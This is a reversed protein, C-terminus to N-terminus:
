FLLKLILIILMIVILLHILKGGIKFILGLFWIVLLIIIIPWFMPYFNNIRENIRLPHSEKRESELRPAARERARRIEGRAL